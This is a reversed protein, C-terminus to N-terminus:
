QTRACRFGYNIDANTPFGAFRSSCRLGGDGSWSGGHIVRFNGSSPGPPDIEPATGLFCTSRDNCFEFLNGAMDYLLEGDISPSGPYSGVPTTWGVNSGYNALSSEPAANGWPYIREDDYQAAYEWEADTPLRYGVAGYPDGGNCEWTSHNYARPLGEMESLWDCYAAAGYWTLEKMPHNPNLGHGADRLVFNGAILAIECELDNLDVLEEDSGDLADRVSSSNAVVRGNDYAWQLADIYQQNTVEYRGLWFGRTLTVQREDVGCDAAGDGMTFTGAPVPVMDIPSATMRFTISDVDAVNFQTKGASTHIEMTWNQGRVTPAVLVIAACVAMAAAITTGRM